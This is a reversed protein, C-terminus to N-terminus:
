EEGYSERGTIFACVTSSTKLSQKFSGTEKFTIKLVPKVAIKDKIEHQTMM